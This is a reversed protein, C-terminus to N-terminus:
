MDFHIPKRPRQPALLEIQTQIVRNLSDNHMRVEGITAEVSEPLRALLAHVTETAEEQTMGWSTAERVIRESRIRDVTQINDIFMGMQKDHQAYCLTSMLDYGPALRIGEHLHLLTFNKGHADCNGIIVNFTVLELLSILDDHTGYESLIGAIQRLSPGGYAQYKRTVPLGLSQCTDEQHVRILKGDEWRRDFRKIALVPITGFELREVEAVALGVNSALRMCFYENDVSFPFRQDAIPPKLIHTSPVGRTPLAWRGDELRTLLLKPQAGALSIRVGNGVGLPSQPLAQLLSSVTTDDVPTALSPDSCVPPPQCDLHQIVLAGACEEGLEGLLGFTDSPGLRFRAALISRAPEEPLLNDLFDRTLANPYSTRVLPLSVSLVPAGLDFRDFTVDLYTLSLRGRPDREVRAVPEGELWIGLSDASVM